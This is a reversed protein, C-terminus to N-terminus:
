AYKGSTPLAALVTKEHFYRYQKASRSLRMMERFRRGGVERKWFDRLADNDRSVALIMIEPCVAGRGASLFV